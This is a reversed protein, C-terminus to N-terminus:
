SCMSAAMQDFTSLMKVHLDAIGTEMDFSVSIRSVDLNKNLNSVESRRVALATNIKTRVFKSMIPALAAWAVARAIWILAVQRKAKTIDSRIEQERQRTALLLNKFGDLGTSTMMALDGGGFDRRTGPILFPDTALPGAFRPDGM